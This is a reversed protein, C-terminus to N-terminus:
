KQHMTLTKKFLKANDDRAIKSMLNAKLNGM